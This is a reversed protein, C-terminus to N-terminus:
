LCYLFGINYSIPEKRVPILYCRWGGRSFTFSPFLTFYVIHYCLEKDKLAFSGDQAFFLFSVSTGTHLKMALNNFPYCLKRRDARAKSLSTCCFKKRWVYHNKILSWIRVLELTFSCFYGSPVEEM